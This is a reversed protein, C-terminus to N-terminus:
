PALLRTDDLDPVVAGPPRHSESRLELGLPTDARLIEGTSALYLRFATSKDPKEAAVLYGDLPQDGVTIRGARATVTTAAAEARAKGLLDPSM